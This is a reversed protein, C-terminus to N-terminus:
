DLLPSDYQSTVAALTVTMATITHDAVDPNKVVVVVSANAVTLGLKDLDRSDFELLGQVAANHFLGLPSGSNLPASLVGGAVQIQCAQLQLFPQGGADAAFQSGLVLLRARTNQPLRGAASAGLFLNTVTATVSLVGGATVTLPLGAATASGQNRFQQLLKM